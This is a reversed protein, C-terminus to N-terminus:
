AGVHVRAHIHVARGAYWGPFITSFEAYGRDDTMQVGRLFTEAGTPTAYGGPVPGDETGGAGLSTDGSYVGLANCHRIDVTAGQIPHGGVTDVVRVRLALPVGPRGETINKRVIDPLLAYPGAAPQPTLTCAYAPAAATAPDATGVASTMGALSLTAAGAATLAGRRSFLQPGTTEDNEM